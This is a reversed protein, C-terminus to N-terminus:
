RPAPGTTNRVILKPQLLIKRPEEEPPTKNGALIDLLLETALRGMLRKEQFITTLEIGPLASIFIDDYGVVSFEEPVRVEQEKCAKLMGIAILDDAAFAATVPLGDRILLRANDYGSEISFDGECTLSDDYSIRREKLIAKFGSFRSLVSESNFRGGVFAISRHGLETLHKGVLRGGQKSDVGVFHLDASPYSSSAFVLPQNQAILEELVRNERNVSAIILGDVKREQILRLHRSELEDRWETNCILLNFGQEVAAEEAGRALAAFFPNSIDPVIIGIIASRQLVLGRAMANPQYGMKRAMQKVRRATERNVLSSDNMALSVTAFSLNLKGAIDKITVM